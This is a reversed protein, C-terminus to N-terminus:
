DLLGSRRSSGGEGLVILVRSGGYKGVLEACRERVGAGFVIETPCYFTFGSFDKSKFDKSAM